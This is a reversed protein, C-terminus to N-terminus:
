LLAGKPHKTMWNKAFTLAKPKSTFWKSVVEKWNFTIVVVWDGPSVIMHPVTPALKRQNEFQEIRVTTANPVNKMVLENFRPEEHIYSIVEDKGWPKTAEQKWNKKYTM